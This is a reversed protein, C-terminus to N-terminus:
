KEDSSDMPSPQASFQILKAQVAQKIAAYNTKTGLQTRVTKLHQNVTVVSICLKEAVENISYDNNALTNLVRLPKPNITIQHCKNNDKSIFEASFKQEVVSEIAEGLLRLTSEYGVVAQQFDSPNMGRTTVSFLACGQSSQSPIPINYYDYYGFSKNLEQIEQMCSTMDSTFPANAVYEHIMSHFFPQTSERARQLNMDHEFYGAKNYAIALEEPLTKLLLQPIGADELRIFVYESFNLRRIQENIHTRLECIDKSRALEAFYGYELKPTTKDNPTDSVQAPPM